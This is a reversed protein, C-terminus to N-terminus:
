TETRYLESLTRCHFGDVNLSFRGNRKSETASPQLGGHQPMQKKVARGVDVLRCEEEHSIYILNCRSIASSQSTSKHLLKISNAGLNESMPQRNPFSVSVTVRVNREYTEDCFVQWGQQGNQPKLTHASMGAASMAGFGNFQHMAFKQKSLLRYRHHM